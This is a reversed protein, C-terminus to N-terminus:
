DLASTEDWGVAVGTPKIGHNANVIINAVHYLRVLVLAIKLSYHSDILLM